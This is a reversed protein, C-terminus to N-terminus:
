NILIIQPKDSVDGCYGIKRHGSNLLCNKNLLFLSIQALFGRVGGTSLSFFFFVYLVMRCVYM